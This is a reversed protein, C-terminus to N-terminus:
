AAEWRIKIQTPHLDVRPRSKCSWSGGGASGIERWGAGRLSAGGEEPLTYTILRRWGLARAARWAAGYLKSCANPCGDTAVRTVELTWGDDLHRAVPRGIMAVGRVNGDDDAVGLRFVDGRSPKHHRHHQAIFAVAERQTLPVIELRNSGVTFTAAHALAHAATQARLTAGAHAM